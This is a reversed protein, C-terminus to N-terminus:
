PLCYNQFKKLFMVCDIEFYVTSVEPNDFYLCKAFQFAAECKKTGVVSIQVNQNFFITIIVPNGKDKCNRLSQEM